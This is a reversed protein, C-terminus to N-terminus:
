PKAADLITPLETQNIFKSDLFQQTVLLVAVTANALASEIEVKWMDGPRITEDTWTKERVSAPLQQLIRDLWQRDDHAYSVFISKPPGSTRNPMSVGM